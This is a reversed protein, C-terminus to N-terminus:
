NGIRGDEFKLKIMKLIRAEKKRIGEASMNYRAGIEALGQHGLLRNELIDSECDSLSPKLEDIFKRLRNKIDNYEMEDMLTNSSLYPNAYVTEDLLDDIDRSNMIGRFYDRRQNEIENQSVESLNYLSHLNESTFTINVPSKYKNWARLMDGKMHIATYTLVSHGLSQDFNKYAKLFSCIGEQILEKRLDQDLSSTIKRVFKKCFNAATYLEAKSPKKYPKATPLEGAINANM